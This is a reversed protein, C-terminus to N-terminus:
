AYKHVGCPKALLDVMAEPYIQSWAALKVGCESGQIRKHCHSRDCMKGSFRAAMEADNTMIRTRKRMPVRSHPTQLGLMCQDFVVVHVGPLSSVRSVELTRWSSARAPHEFVFRRGAAHQLTACQMAHRLFVMGQEWQREVAEKTMKKYNWLRQLESFATCPPSLILMMISLVSLLKLSLQRLEHSNFDWGTLIDLSLSGRLGKCRVVPLVRPPSYYEAVDHHTSLHVAIEPSPVQQTTQSDMLLELNLHLDTEEIDDADDFGSVEDSGGEHDVDRPLECEMGSESYDICSECDSTVDRPLACGTDRQAPPLTVDDSGVDPPLDDSGVDPPLDISM